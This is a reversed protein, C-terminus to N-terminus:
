HWRDGFDGMYTLTAFLRDGLIALSCCRGDLLEEALDFVELRSCGIMGNAGVAFLYGDSVALGRLACGMPVTDLLMPASPDAVDFTLLGAYQDAVYAREGSVAIGQWPSSASISGVVAPQAPTAIDVIAMGDNGFVLYAHSGAIVADQPFGAHEVLGLVHM